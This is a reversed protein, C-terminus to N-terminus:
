RIGQEIWVEVVTAKCDAASFAFHVTLPAVHLRYRGESVPQAFRLPEAALLGEIKNTADAIMQQDRSQLWLETLEEEASQLWVVTNKM